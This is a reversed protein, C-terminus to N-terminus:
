QFFDILPKLKRYEEQFQDQQEAYPLNWLPDEKPFSRVVRLALNLKRNSRDM